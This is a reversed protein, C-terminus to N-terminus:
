LELVSDAKVTCAGFHCETDTEMIEDAELMKM